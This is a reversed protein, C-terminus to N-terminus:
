LLFHAVALYFVLGLSLFDLFLFFVLQVVQQNFLNLLFDGQLLLLHAVALSLLQLSELLHHLFVFFVLPPQSLLSFSLSQLYNQSLQLVDLHLLLVCPKLVLKLSLSILFLPFTLLLDLM